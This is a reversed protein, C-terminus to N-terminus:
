DLMHLRELERKELNFENETGCLFDPLLGQSESREVPSHPILLYTILAQLLGYHMIEQLWFTFIIDPNEAGKKAVSM